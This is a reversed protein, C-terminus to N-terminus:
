ENKYKNNFQNIRSKFLFIQDALIDINKNALRIRKLNLRRDKDINKKAKKRKSYLYEIQKTLKSVMKISRQQSLTDCAEIFGIEKMLDLEFPVVNSYNENLRTDLLTYSTGEREIKFGKYIIFSSEVTKFEKSVKIAEM